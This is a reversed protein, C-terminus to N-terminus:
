RQSVAIGRSQTIDQEPGSGESQSLIVLAAPPLPFQFVGFLLDSHLSCLAFNLFDDGRRPSEANSAGSCPFEWWAKSAPPECSM